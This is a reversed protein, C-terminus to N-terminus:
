VGAVATILLWSRADGLKPGVERVEALLQDVIEDTLEDRLAQENEIWQDYVAQWLASVGNRRQVHITRFGSGDLVRSWAPGLKEARESGPQAERTTFVLRGDSRLIRHIEGLAADVDTAFPLADISVVADVSQDGLWTAEFQGVRFLVSRDLDWETARRAAIEIGPRSRDVGIVRCGLRRSLWLGVGGVGCGLDVVLGNPQCTVQEALEELLKRTCSSFPQVDVPYQDGWAKVWLSSFLPKGFRAAYGDIESSKNRVTTVKDRELPMVTPFLPIM